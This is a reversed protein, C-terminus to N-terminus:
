RAGGAERPDQQTSPQPLVPTQSNQVQQALFERVSKMRDHQDQSLLAAFQDM